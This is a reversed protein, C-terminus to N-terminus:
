KFVKKINIDVLKIKLAHMKSIDTGSNEGILFVM